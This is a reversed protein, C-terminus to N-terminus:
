KQLKSYLAHVMKDRHSECNIYNLIQTFRKKSVFSPLLKLRYLKRFIRNEYPQLLNTMYVSSSNYYIDTADKLRNSDSIIDNLSYLRNMFSNKDIDINVTATKNCQEYPYITFKIESNSFSLNLMFGENWIGNREGEEDFCFNGLGYFIPKSKYVEYGSFCHQHHNVVADAGSDIFFRYTEQMRLSPLQFMEHGGHVIVLVYDANKKADQITYYQRIPNLPNAGGDTETAISFEHECCNIVALKEGDKEVYLVKNADIINKGVGVVDLGENKCCEVSKNLGETGYDLIHNNAMTVGTFGAYKVAKAANSSCKLHPGCKTIAKYEDEVIPCEFNVFSIDSDKIISQIESGFIDQYQGNDVKEALRAMPAFDGAVLVKM